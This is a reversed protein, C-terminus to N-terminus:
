KIKNATRNDLIKEFVHTLKNAIKNPSFNNLAYRRIDDNNFDERNEIMKVMSDALQDVNDKDVIYGVKDYVFNEPGGCRTAIVPLGLLMAEIYVVGFTEGRSALVFANADCWLQKLDEKQYKGYFNVNNEIGLDNVLSQLNNKLPGDGYITMNVFPYIATVKSFAKVLVDFGKLFILNGAAVFKFGSNIQSFLIDTNNSDGIEAINYVVESDFGVLKKINHQLSESVAIIKDAKSYIGIIRKKLSPLISKVNLNSSHETIVLPLNEAKCLDTAFAGCNYFHAHVIDPKSFDKLYRKYLKKFVYSGIVDHLKSPMRGIPISYTYSKVGECINEIHLGFHRKRRISRLDVALITVNHGLGQLAKAQDKEFIGINEVGRAVVIINM